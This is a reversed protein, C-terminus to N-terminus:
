LQGQTVFAVKGEVYLMRGCEKGKAILKQGWILDKAREIFRAVFDLYLSM